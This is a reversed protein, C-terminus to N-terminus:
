EVELLDIYGVIGGDVLKWLDHPGPVPEVEYGLEAAMSKAKELTSCAAVSFGEDWTLVYVKM